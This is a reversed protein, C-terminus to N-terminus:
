SNFDRNEDLCNIQWHAEMVWTECVYVPCERQNRKNHCIYQLNTQKARSPALRTRQFRWLWKMSRGTEPM